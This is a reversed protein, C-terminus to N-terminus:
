CEECASNEHMRSDRKEVRAHAHHILIIVVVRPFSYINIIILLLLLLFVSFRRLSKREKKPRLPSFVDNNITRGRGQRRRKSSTM